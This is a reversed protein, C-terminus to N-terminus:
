ALARVWRRWRSAAFSARETSCSTTPTHGLLSSGIEVVETGEGETVKATRDASNEGNGVVIKAGSLTFLEPCYNIPNTIDNFEFLPDQGPSSTLLGGNGDPDKTRFMPQEDGSEFVGTVYSTSNPNPGHCSRYVELQWWVYSSEFHDDTQPLNISIDEKFYYSSSPTTTILSSSWM